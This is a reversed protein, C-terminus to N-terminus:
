KGPCQSRISDSLNKDGYAKDYHASFRAALKIATEKFADKDEWTNIPKLMESPIGECETPVQLHFVDDTEFEVSDLEGNLAANVMRRTLPLDIREGVGYAGGSWGTNILYVNTNHEDMKSGLMEAYIDPNLPMFPQGFFRSFTAQPETVGTETGALKSTYGMLFWLMAQDKTLKSVPPIVGYADATLFLITKPHGATSSEKINILYKLPYSARSNPTFRDDYYDFEGDPYMMANEVISGHNLYDDKHMVADYIDPEKKPNIDIMKAYCGNEFNAIGSDNWGHEDDGLLARSKDASLTTKGTGSLGLLLASSGDDGENASCHLPLVDEFPLLYNMVTFLMKKMSGMYASGIVLGVKRDMDVAVAMNTTTGNPMKRLRGKYREPDLKHYPLALLVFGDDNFCSQELDSPVPRFMNDIFLTHLARNTLTKVPLAYNSDAGIVRNTEYLNDVGGIFSVADEFLMDFTEEDIPINNPSNWDINAESSARKVLVTDKPSRGTSETRTWSALAGSESVLAEQHAVATKIMEERPIDTFVNSHANVAQQLKDRLDM